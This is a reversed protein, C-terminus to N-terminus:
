MPNSNWDHTNHPWATGIDWVNARTTMAFFGAKAKRGLRGQEEMWFIIDDVAGDPYADGMAAKTARAIKAGLDISTEDV